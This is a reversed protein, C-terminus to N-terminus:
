EINEADKRADVAMHQEQTDALRIRDKLDREHDSPEIEGM